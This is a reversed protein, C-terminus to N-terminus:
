VNKFQSIYHRTYDSLVLRGSIEARKELLYDWDECGQWFIKKMELAAEPSLEALKQAFAQVEGNLEEYTEFVKCFLGKSLAWEADYWETDISLQSFASLGIKRQVAPGVVFPGIGLAFESLRISASKHAFAYDVASALGLGGGVAKGQIKGIIIKPCKRMANIVFGFGSFFEKGEEFTKISILEDFSAGACFAKQGDSQLIIVKASNNEGTEEITKALNRLLAGPLSNSKPHSFTIEAIGDQIIVDINGNNTM